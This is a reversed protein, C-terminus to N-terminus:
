RQTLPARDGTSYTMSAGYDWRLVDEIGGNLWHEPTWLYYIASEVPGDAIASAWAEQAPSLKGGVAKLEALIVVGNRAMILDPVGPDTGTARWTPWRAVKWGLVRALSVVHQSLDRESMSKAIVTQADTM